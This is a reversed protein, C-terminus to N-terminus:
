CTLKDVVIIGGGYANTLGIKRIRVRYFFLREAGQFFLLLAERVVVAGLRILNPNQYATM